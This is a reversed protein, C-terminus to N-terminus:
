NQSICLIAIVNQFWWIIVPWMSSPHVKWHELPQSFSNQWYKENWWFLIGFQILVFCQLYEGGGTQFWHFHKAQHVMEVWPQGIIHEEHGFCDNSTTDWSSKWLVNPYYWCAQLFPCDRFCHCAAWIGLNVLGYTDTVVSFTPLFPNIRIVAFWPTIICFAKINLSM